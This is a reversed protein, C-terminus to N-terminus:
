GEGQAPRSLMVMTQDDDLPGEVRNCFDPHIVDFPHGAEDHGGTLALQMRDEDYVPNVM